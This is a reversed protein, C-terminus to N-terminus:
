ENFVLSEAMKIIEEDDLYGSADIMITNEAKMAIFNINKNENDKLIYGQDGDIKIQEMDGHEIDYGLHADAPLVSVAISQKKDSTEFFLLKEVGDDSVYTLEFGEPVYEPYWFDSWGELLPSKDNPKFEISDENENTLFGFYKVRLADVSAVTITGSLLVVALSAACVQTIKKRRAKKRKVENDRDVQRVYALMKEDLEKPIVINALEEDTPIDLSEFIIDELEKKMEDTLLSKEKFRRM